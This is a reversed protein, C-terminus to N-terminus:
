EWTWPEGGEGDGYWHSGDMVELDENWKRVRIKATAAPAIRLEMANGRGDMFRFAGEREVSGDTTFSAWGTDGSTDFGAIVLEGDPADYSLGGPMNLRALLTEGDDYAANENEDIFALSRGNLANVLLVGPQSRKISEIRTQRVLSALDRSFTEIKARVLFTQLAPATLAALLGLIAMVVVLDVLTFGSASRRM